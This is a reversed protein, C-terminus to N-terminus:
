KLGFMLDKEAECWRCDRKRVKVWWMNWYRLMDSRSDNSCDATLAKVLDECDNRTMVDRGAEAEAENGRVRRTRSEEKM